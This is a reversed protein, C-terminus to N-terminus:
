RDFALLGTGTRVLVIDGVVVPASRAPSGMPASWLTTGPASASAARLVGDSGAAYLLDDAIAPAFATTGLGPLDTPASGTRPLFRV